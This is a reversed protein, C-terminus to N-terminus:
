TILILPHAPIFSLLLNQTPIYKNNVHNQFCILLTGKGIVNYIPRAAILTALYKDASINM